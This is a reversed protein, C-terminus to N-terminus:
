PRKKPAPPIIKVWREPLILEDGPAIGASRFVNPLGSPVHSYGLGTAFTSFVGDVPIVAPAGGRAQLLV